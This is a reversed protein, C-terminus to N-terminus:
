NDEVWVVVPHTRTYDIAVDRLFEWVSGYIAYNHEGNDHGFIKYETWDNFATDIHAEFMTTTFKVSEKETDYKSTYTPKFEVSEGSDSLSEYFWSLNLQTKCLSSRLDAHYPM